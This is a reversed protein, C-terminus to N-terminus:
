AEEVVEPTVTKVESKKEPAKTGKAKPKQVAKSIMSYVKQAYTKPSEVSFGSTLLATEFLLECVVKARKSEKDDAVEERLSKILPHNPNIEMIKKGKMYDAARPDQMPQTKMIREMNASWGFKSTAVTCPSDTLRNSVTVKEVKDKLSTQVFECLDSFEKQVADQEEKNEDGLDLDEKSVDVIDLDKFQGINTISVEDAPESLYLVEYDKKILGEVFPAAAAADKSDAAMYYIAKQGEKMRSCYDELGTMDDGSKSSSFRLLSALKQRNASDEIVGYKLYNGFSEYFRSYESKDEKKSLDEMMDLSRRVLQKRMVRVIRNEQLIERSVNLPLDSSDVVGKIFSLYRPLLNDRFEDSIFVRKVYLRIGTSQETMDRDIPAMGPIFLMASFEITGEVNFHSYAAPELFEGFTTKYFNEYQEKEVDKSDQLWLPKNENQVAWDWKDEYETKMVSDVKKPEREEKKAEEDEKAQEKETAEEDVVQKPERKSTYLQIPFSIFESYQKLLSKLKSSDAYEVCDEKLFLTIRTGRAIDNTGEKISYQHSGAESEWVWVADSDNSKSAVQVRDSVLFSSYFGVGFQGILNADGKSEQLAEMFKRTGSKAITGLQDLLQDRTMGIGTDEITITKAEPDAKVRIEMKAEAKLAEQDSISNLRLKDLADSANSILERLFIERNSYLSNIIMDLLRDVEAKYTFTEESSKSDTDVSAACVTSHARSEIGCLNIVGGPSFRSSKNRRKGERFLVSTNRNTACDSHVATLSTLGTAPVLRSLAPLSRQLQRTSAVSKSHVVCRILSAM